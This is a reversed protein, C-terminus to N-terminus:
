AGSHTCARRPLSEKHSFRAPQLIREAQLLGDAPPSLRGAQLVREEHRPVQEGHRPTDRHLGVRHEQREHQPRVERTDEQLHEAYPRRMKNWALAGGDKLNYPACELSILGIHKVGSEPRRHMRIPDHISPFCCNFGGDHLEGRKSAEFHDVLDQESEYGVVYILSQALEPDNSLATFQPAETLALHCTFFSMDSYRWQDLRTILEAELHEKGVYDYFTQHPNIASCVFKTAKIITGDDLEVGKAEGNEIVIRKIVCGSIVRSGNESIFKGLLHAVHHSGMHSLRFHWGRNLMLPVLYGM